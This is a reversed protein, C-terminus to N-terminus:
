DLEKKIKFSDIEVTGYQNSLSIIDTDISQTPKGFDTIKIIRAYYPYGSGFYNYHMDDRFTIAYKGKKAHKMQFESIMYDQGATQMRAGAANSLKQNNLDKAGPVNYELNYLAFASAEVIIRIDATIPKIIEKPIYSIDISEKTLSIMMNLDALMMEKMKLNQVDWNYGYKTIGNYLIRIASDINNKQYYAWAMDRTFRINAPQDNILNQYIQIANDFQKMHEYIFAIASQSTYDGNSMEAAKQIMEETYSVLGAEYFYLAMDLYFTANDGYVEELSKYAKYKKNKETKKLVQIYEVDEQNKLKSPGYYNTYSGSKTTILIVGNAARSGYIASAGADKLVDIREIDNVSISNLGNEIAVGDIVYLPENSQSLSTGGRIRIKVEADPSGDSTTVQMGAIRGTLAEGVSNISIDKLQKSSISTVSGTMESKLKTGYGVVVVEDMSRAEEKTQIAISSANLMAPKKKEANETAKDQEIKLYSQGVENINIKDQQTGWMDFRKNYETVVQKLMEVNDTKQMYEYRKRYDTKVYGKDICQQMIDAPPTINYKVYDEIKELVIFSTQWTVMKNEIGFALSRYWYNNSMVQEFSALSKAKEFDNGFCNTQLDYQQTYLVKNGYGYKLIVQKSTSKLKGTIMMSLSIAQPLKIDAKNGSEDEVAILSINIKSLSNISITDYTQNYLHFGKFNIAPRWYAYYDEYGDITYYNYDNNYYYNYTSIFYAPTKELVPKKNGWTHLGDTFVLILDDNTDFNLIGFQTAGEKKIQKITSEWNGQQIENKAFVKEGYLQQNFPVITLEDPNYKTLVKKLYAIYSKNDGDKMSASCDWYVRLKKIDITYDRMQKNEAKVFFSGTASEMCASLANCKQPLFFSIVDPKNIPVYKKSFTYRNGSSTFKENKLLGFEFIPQYPHDTVDISLSMKEFNDKSLFDLSYKFGDNACKLLEEIKIKIKRSSKAAVPYINLSYQNTGVMRLLAPDMRKGVISSYAQRAKWSEEITGERYQQGLMLQLGTVAQGSNLQFTYLAEAEENRNNYFEMEIWTTALMGKTTVSVNCEKIIMTQDFLRGNQATAAICVFATAIAFLLRKM